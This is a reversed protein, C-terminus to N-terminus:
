GLLMRIFNIENIISLVTNENSQSIITKGLETFSILEGIYQIVWVFVIGKLIGIVAGWIKNSDKWANVNGIKNIIMGILAAIAVAVLFTMFVSVGKSIASVFSNMTEPATLASHMFSGAEYRADVYQRVVESVGYEMNLYKILLQRIIPEFMYEFVVVFIIAVMSYLTMLFGKKYGIVMTIAIVILAIIFLINISGM